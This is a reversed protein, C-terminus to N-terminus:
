YSLAWGYHCDVNITVCCGCCNCNGEKDCCVRCCPNWIDYQCDHDGLWWQHCYDYCTSNGCGGCEPDSCNCNMCWSIEAGHIHVSQFKENVDKTRLGETKLNDVKLNNYSKVQYYPQLTKNALRLKEKNNIYFSLSGRSASDIIYFDSGNGVTIGTPNVFEQNKADAGFKGYEQWWYKKPCKNWIENSFFKRNNTLIVKKHLSDIIALLSISQNSCAIGGCGGGCSIQRKVKIVKIPQWGNKHFKVWKKDNLWKVGTKKFEIQTQIISGKKDAIFVDYIDKNNHYVSVGRPDWDWDDKGLVAYDNGNNFLNGVLIRKHMIDSVFIYGNAYAIGWPQWDWSHNGLTTWNDGNLNIKVIRKKGTDVIYLNTGDTAISQPNEFQQWSNKYIGGAIVKWYTGDKKVKVIRQNGTDVVYLYYGVSVIDQPNNFQPNNTSKNTAKDLKPKDFGYSGIDENGYNFHPYPTCKIASSVNSCRITSPNFGSYNLRIIKDGRTPSIYEQKDQKFKIAGKRYNGLTTRFVSDAQNFIYTDPSNKKFGILATKAYRGILHFGTENSSGFGTFYNRAGSVALNDKLWLDGFRSLRVLNDELSYIIKSNKSNCSWLSDIIQGQYTSSIEDSLCKGNSNYSAKVIKDIIFSFGFVLFIFIILNIIFRKNVKLM